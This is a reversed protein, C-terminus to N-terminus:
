HCAFALHRAHHFFEHVYNLKLATSGLIASGHVSGDVYMSVYLLVALGLVAWPWLPRSIGQAVASAILSM